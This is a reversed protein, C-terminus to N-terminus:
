EEVPFSEIKDKKKLLLKRKEKLNNKFDFYYNDIKKRKVETKYLGEVTQPTVKAIRAIHSKRMNKQSLLFRVLASRTNYFRGKHFTKGM